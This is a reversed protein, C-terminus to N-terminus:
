FTASATAVTSLYGFRNKYQIGLQHAGSLGPAATTFMLCTNQYPAPNTESLIGDGDLAWDGFLTGSAVFNADTLADSGALYRVQSYLQTGMWQTTLDFPTDWSLQWYDGVATLVVNGAPDPGGTVVPWAPSLSPASYVVNARFISPGSKEAANRM